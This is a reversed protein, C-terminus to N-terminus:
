GRERKRGACGDATMEAPAARAGGNQPAGARGWALNRPSKPSLRAPATPSPAPRTISAPQHRADPAVRDRVVLFPDDDRDGDQGADDGRQGTGLRGAVRDDVRHEGRQGRREDRPGARRRRPPREDGAGADRCGARQGARQDDQERTDGRQEARGPDPRGPGVLRDGARRDSADDDLDHQSQLPVREEERGRQEAGCREADDGHEADLAAPPVEALPHPDPQDGDAPEGGDGDDPDTDGRELGAVGGAVSVEAHEVPQLEDLVALRGLGSGGQALRREVEAVRAVLEVARERLEGAEDGADGLVAVRGGVDEGARGVAASEAAVVRSTTSRSWSVTCSPTISTPAKAASATGSSSRRAVISSSSSANCSASDGQSTAGNRDRSSSASSRASWNTGWALAVAAAARIAGAISPASPSRRYKTAKTLLASARPIPPRIPLQVSSVTSLPRSRTVASPRVASRCSGASM